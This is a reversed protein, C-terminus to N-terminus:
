LLFLNCERPDPTTVRKNKSDIYVINELIFFVIYLLLWFEPFTKPFTYKESKITGLVVKLKRLLM